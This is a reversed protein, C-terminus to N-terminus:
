FVYKLAFQAIRPDNAATITGFGTSSAVPNNVAPNKLLTHNLLNFYEARFQVSREGFLPFTRVMAAHWVTNGPGRLSGKVINGFGTGAPGIVPVTFADKNFWNVCAKSGPCDGANNADKSYTPLSFNQVARDQGL